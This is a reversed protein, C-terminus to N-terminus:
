FSPVIKLKRSSRFAEEAKDFDITAKEWVSEIRDRLEQPPKQGSELIAVLQTLLDIQDSHEEIKELRKNLRFYRCQPCGERPDIRKRIKIDYDPDAPAAGDLLTQNMLDWFRDLRAGERMRGLDPVKGITNVAYSCPMVRTWGEESDPVLTPVLQMAFCRKETHAQFSREADTHLVAFGTGPDYSPAVAQVTTCVDDGRSNHRSSEMLEPRMQIFDVGISHAHEAKKPVQSLDKHQVTDGIAVSTRGKRLALLDLLIKRVEAYRRQFDAPLPAPLM